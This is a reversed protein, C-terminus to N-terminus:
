SFLGLRRITYVFTASRVVAGFFGEAMAALLGDVACAMAPPGLAIGGPWLSATCDLLSRALQHFCNLLLSM